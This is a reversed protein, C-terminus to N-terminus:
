RSCHRTRRFRAIAAVENRCAVFRHLGSIDITPLIAKGRTLECGMAPSRGDGWGPAGHLRGRGDERKTKSQYGVPPHGRPSAEGFLPGARDRFNRGLDVM